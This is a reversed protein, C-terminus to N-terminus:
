VDIDETKESDKDITKKLIPAAYMGYWLANFDEIKTYEFNLMALRAKKYNKSEVLTVHFRGDLQSIYKNISDTDKLKALNSKYIAKSEDTKKTFYFIYNFVGSALMLFEDVTSITFEEDKDNIRLKLDQYKEELNMVADGKKLYSEISMKLLLKNLLSSSYRKELHQYNLSQEMLRKLRSQVIPNTLGLSGYNNLLWKGDTLFLTVLKSSPKKNKDVFDLTNNVNNISNEKYISDLFNRIIVNIFKDPDTTLDNILLLGDESTYRKILDYDSNGRFVEISYICATGKTPEHIKLVYDGNVLNGLKKEKLDSKDLYVVIYPNKYYYHQYYLYYKYNDMELYNHMDEIPILGSVHLLNNLHADVTKNTINTSISNPVFYWNDGMLVYSSERSDFVRKLLQLRYEKEVYDSYENFYVLVRFDKHLDKPIFDTIDTLLENIKGLNDKLYEPIKTTMGKREESLLWEYSEPFNDVIFNNYKETIEDLDKKNNFELYDNASRRSSSMCLNRFNDEFGIGDVLNYEKLLVSENAGKILNTKASVLMGLYSKSKYSYGKHIVDYGENLFLEKNKFTYETKKSEANKYKYKIAICSEDMPKRTDISIYIMDKIADPSHYNYLEKKEKVTLEKYKTLLDMVAM